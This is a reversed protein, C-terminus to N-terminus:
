KMRRGRRQPKGDKVTPWGDESWFVEQLCLPRPIYADKKAPMQGARDHCHYMVFSRGQADTFIEGNHGPGFLEDKEGSTLFVEAFGERMSRGARDTFDDTLKRARGVVIGYSADNFWGRSAFLYWWGNRYHLYAAEFVRERGVPGKAPDGKIGAVATYAANPALARGDDALPVRFIGGTSGFFLWLRGTEPDRVVEPDISDAIKTVRSSALCVGNTFPGEPVDCTYAWIQTDDPGNWLSVYLNWRNTAIQFVDPAWVGKAFTKIRAFEADTLFGSRLEKWHVLDESSLVKRATSTLLYGGRTDRWCTPDPTDAPWVPNDFSQSLAMLGLLCWNQM